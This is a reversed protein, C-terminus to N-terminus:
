EVKYAEGSFRSQRTAEALATGYELAEKETPFDKDDEVDSFKDVKYGYDRRLELRAGFTGDKPTGGLM